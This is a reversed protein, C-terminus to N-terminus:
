VLDVVRFCFKTYSQSLFLCVEWSGGNEVGGSRSFWRSRKCQSHSSRGVAGGAAGGLM